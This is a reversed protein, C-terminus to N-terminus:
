LGVSQYYGSLYILGTGASGKVYVVTGQKFYAFKGYPQPALDLTEGTRLYDNSTTGDFSITVDEDCDNIIRIMFCAETLGSSNIAKFSAALGASDFSQLTIAKVSNNVSM